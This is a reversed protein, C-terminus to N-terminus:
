SDCGAGAAPRRVVAALALRVDNDEVTEFDYLAKVKKRESERNNLNISGYLSSTATEQKLKSNSSTSTSQKNISQSSTSEKISLAIAKALDEEEKQAATKASSTSKM